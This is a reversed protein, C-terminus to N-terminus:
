IEYEKLADNLRRPFPFAVINNNQKEMSAIQQEGVAVLEDKRFYEFKMTVKNQTIEKAYMKILIEDLAFLEKFYNCSVKTTVFVLSENFMKVVEPCHDRLFMERVKGQWRIHNVFYVNGVLNTEEFTVIHNFEYAKKMKSRWLWLIFDM